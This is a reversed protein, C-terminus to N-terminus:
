FRLIEFLLFLVCVCVCKRGFVDCNYLKEEFDRQPPRRMACKMASRAACSSAGETSRRRPVAVIDNTQKNTQKNTTSISKAFQTTTTTAQYIQNYNNTQKKRARERETRAREVMQEINQQEIVKVSTAGNSAVVVNRVTQM